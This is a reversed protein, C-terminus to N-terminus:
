LFYVICIGLSSSYLHSVICVTVKEPSGYKRVTIFTADEVCHANTIIRRGQIVFGSGSVDERNRM